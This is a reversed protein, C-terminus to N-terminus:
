GLFLAHLGKWLYKVLVVLTAVVLWGALGFAALGAALRWGTYPEESEVVELFDERTPPKNNEENM